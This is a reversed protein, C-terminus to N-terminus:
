SLADSCGDVHGLGSPRGCGRCSAAVLQEGGAAGRFQERWFALLDWWFKEDYLAWAPVPFTTSRLYHLERPSLQAGHVKLFAELSKRPDRLPDHENFPWKDTVMDVYSGDAPVAPAQGLRARALGVLVPGARGLLILRSVGLAASLRELHHDSFRDKRSGTKSSLLDSLNSVSIGARQALENQSLGRDQMFTRVAAAIAVSAERSYTHSDARM